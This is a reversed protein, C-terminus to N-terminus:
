EYWKMFRVEISTDKGLLEKFKNIDSGRYHYPIAV